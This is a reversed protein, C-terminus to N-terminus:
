DTVDVRFYVNYNASYTDDDSSEPNTYINDIADGYKHVLYVKCRLHDHKWDGNEIRFSIVKPRPSHIDQPYIHISNLFEEVDRISVTKYVM